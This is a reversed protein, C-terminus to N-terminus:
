LRRSRALDRAPARRLRGDRGTACAAVVFADELPGSSRATSGSCHGRDSGDSNWKRGWRRHAARWGHPLRSGAQRLLLIQIHIRRAADDCRRGGRQLGSRARELLRLGRQEVPQRPVVISKWRQMDEGLRSIRRRVFNGLVREALVGPQKFAHKLIEADLALDDMHPRTRHDREIFKLGRGADFGRPDDTKGVIDRAGHRGERGADGDNLPAIGDADFQRVLAALGDIQAFQQTRLVELFGFVPEGDRKALCDAALRDDDIERAHRMQEDRARRSRALRNGDVGHDQRQEVPELRLLAAEDHDIRFHKFQRDIVANRMQQSRDHGVRLLGDDRQFPRDAFHLVAVLFHRLEADAVDFPEVGADRLRGGLALREHPRHLGAVIALGAFGDVFLLRHSRVTRGNM